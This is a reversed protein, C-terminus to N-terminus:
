HTSNLILFNKPLLCYNNGNQKPIYWPHNSLWQRPQAKIKPEIRGRVISGSSVAPCVCLHVDALFPHFLVGAILSKKGQSCAALQREQFSPNNLRETPNLM